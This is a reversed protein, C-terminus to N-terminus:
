PATAKDSEDKFAPFDADQVLRIRERDVIGDERCIGVLDMLDKRFVTDSEKMAHIFVLMGFLADLQDHASWGERCLPLELEESRVVAAGQVFGIVQLMRKRPLGALMKLLHLREMEAREHCKECLNQLTEEPYEWPSMGKEYYTHHVHQTASKDGCLQCKFGERSMVRLRMEQWRPDKLLEWYPKRGSM